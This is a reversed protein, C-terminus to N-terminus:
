GVGGALQTGTGRLLVPLARRVALDSEGGFPQRGGPGDRLDVGDEDAAPCRREHTGANEVTEERAKAAGETERGTGLRRRFGVRFRSRGVEERFEPLAPEGAHGEAHLGGGLMDQTYQVPAVRRTTRQGRGPLCPVGAELVDVEVHDVPGRPLAVV